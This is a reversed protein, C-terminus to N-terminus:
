FNFQQLRIFHDHLIYVSPFEHVFPMFVVVVTAAVYYSLTFVSVNTPHQATTPKTTEPVALGGEPEEMVENLTEAAPNTIEPPIPDEELEEADEPDPAPQM